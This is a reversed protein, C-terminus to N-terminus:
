RAKVFHRARLWVSGQWLSLTSDTSEISFINTNAVNQDTLVYNNYTNINPGTSGDLYEAAANLAWTYNYQLGFKVIIADANAIPYNVGADPTAIPPVTAHPITSSQVVQPRWLGLYNTAASSFVDSGAENLMYIVMRSNANVNTAKLSARWWGEGIASLYATTGVNINTLGNALDYDALGKVTGEDLQIRMKTIGNPRAFVTGYVDGAPATSTQLIFHQVVGANPSLQTAVNSGGACVPINVSNNAYTVNGVTWGSFNDGGAINTSFTPLTGVLYYDQVIKQTVTKTVPVRIGSLGPFTYADSGFDNWSTPLTCYIRTWEVVGAQKDQFDVDDAFYVQPLDPHPTNPDPKTYYARLQSFRARYIIAYPNQPYPRSPEFAVICVAQSFPPQGAATFFNTAPM